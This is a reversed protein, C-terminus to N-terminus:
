VGAGEEVLVTKEKGGGEQYGNYYIGTRSGVRGGEERERKMHHILVSHAGRVHKM